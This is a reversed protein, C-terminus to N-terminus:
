PTLMKLIHDAVNVKKEILVTFGGAPLELSFNEFISLGGFRKSLSSISLM